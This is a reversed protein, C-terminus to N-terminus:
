RVARARVAPEIDAWIAEAIRRAGLENHHVDDSYVPERVEDLVDALDVVEDALARRAAESALRLEDDFETTPEGEVTPRTLRTPQWYWRVDLDHIAALDSSISRAREYRAAALEGVAEPSRPGVRAPEPVRMGDPLPPPEGSAGRAADIAERISPVAFLGESLPEQVMSGDALRQEDMWSATVLESAGDYFLVLDPAAEHALDWRLRNAERAHQEAPVGRNSVELSIGEDWALRALESAITHEDRQGLGFVTSAGYIWVTARACDCPPPTWSRRRGGEVNVYTTSGDAMGVGDAVPVLGLWRGAYELEERYTPYWADDAFAAPIQDRDVAVGEPRALSYAGREPEDSGSRQSVAVAVLVVVALAGAAPQWRLRSPHGRPLRASAPDVSAVTVAAWGRSRRAAAVRSPVSLLLLGWGLLAAM